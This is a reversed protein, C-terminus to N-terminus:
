AAVRESPWRGYKADFERRWRAYAQEAAYRAAREGAAGDVQLQAAIGDLVDPIDEVPWDAAAWTTRSTREVLGALLLLALKRRCTSRHIGLQTSIEAVTSAGRVVAYWVFLANPGLGSRAFYRREHGDLVVTPPEFTAVTGGPLAVTMRHRGAEPNVIEIPHNIEVRRVVPGLFADHGLAERLLHGLGGPTTSVQPNGDAGHANGQEDGGSTTTAVKQVTPLELRWVPAAGGGAEEVLVLLGVGVLHHLAGGVAKRSIGAEIALQRSSASVEYRGARRVIVLLACLTARISAARRTGTITFSATWDLDRDVQAVFARRARVGAGFGSHATADAERPELGAAVGAEALQKVTLEHDLRAVDARKGVYFAVANLTDNRTGEEAAEIQAVAWALLADGSIGADEEDGADPADPFDDHRRATALELLWAPADTPETGNALRWGRALTGVASWQHRPSWM